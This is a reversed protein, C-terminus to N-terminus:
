HAIRAQGQQNDERARARTEPTVCVHDSPSAERWVYGQICTDSGYARKRPDPEVRSRAAQNDRAAQARIDPTVCVKDGSFAERWVYGQICTGPAPANVPAGVNLAVVSGPKLRAGADPDQGVVVDPSPTRTQVVTIRYQLGLNRLANIAERRSLGMVRPVTVPEPVPVAARVAITLTITSGPAVQANPPPEQRLVSGPTVDDSSERVTVIKFEDQQLAAAADRVSRGVVNPVTRLDAIAVDLAVARGKELSEGPGPTQGLVTGPEVDRRKTRSVSGVMLGVRELAARADAVRMGTVGPVPVQPPTTPTAPATVAPAKASSASPPPSPEVPPAKQALVSPGSPTVQAPAAPTAFERVLWYGGGGLLLTNVGCLVAIPGTTLVRSPTSASHGGSAPPPAGSGDPAPQDPTGSPSAVLRDLTEILVRVDFDWRTHSLELANRYALPKLDEPLEDAEPMSAGQVLVPIVRVDRKLAAATEFRVFDKGNDLRRKGAADVSKAWEKGILAVLVDCSAVASDIVKRFDEGPRITTVDMFIRDAGFHRKLDDFLHRAEGQADDRRYSIFVGAM